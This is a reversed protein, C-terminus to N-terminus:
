KQQVLIVPKVTKPAGGPLNQLGLNKKSRAGALWDGPCSALPHSQRYKCCRQQTRTLVEQTEM